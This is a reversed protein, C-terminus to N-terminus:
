SRFTYERPEAIVVVTVGHTAFIGGKKQLFHAALAIFALFFVEIFTRARLYDPSGTPPLALRFVNRGRFFGRKLPGFHRGCPEEKRAVASYSISLSKEPIRFLPWLTLNEWFRLFGGYGSALFLFFNNWTHGRVIQKHVGLRLADEKKANTGRSAGWPPTSGNRGEAQKPIDNM